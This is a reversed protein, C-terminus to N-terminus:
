RWVVRMWVIRWDVSLWDVHALNREAFIRAAAACTRNEVLARKRVGNKYSKNTTLVGSRTSGGNAGGYEVWPM